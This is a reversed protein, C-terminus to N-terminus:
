GSMGGLASAATQFTIGIKKTNIGFSTALNKDIFVASAARGMKSNEFRHILIGVLLVMAYSLILMFTRHDKVDELIKPISFIGLPGGLAETNEIVTKTIYIFTFGVIVVAFCPADGIALSIIFGLLAGLLTGLLFIVVFPWHWHLAAYAAFYASIAMNAVTLFHLQGARYPLYISWSMLIYIATIALYYYMPLSM